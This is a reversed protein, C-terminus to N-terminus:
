RLFVMYGVLSVATLVAIAVIIGNSLLGSRLAVEVPLTAVDADGGQPVSPGISVFPSLDADPAAWAPRPVRFFTGCPSCKGRRGATSLPAYLKRQCKPCRFVVRGKATAASM